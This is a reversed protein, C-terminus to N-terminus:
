SDEGASREKMGRIIEEGPVVDGREADDAGAKVAHRLLERKGEPHREAWELIHIAARLVEEASRYRGARVRELVAAEIEPSVDDLPMLERFTFLTDLPVAQHRTTAALPRVTQIM